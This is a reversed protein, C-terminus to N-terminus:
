GEAAHPGPCGTVGHWPVKSRPVHGAGDGECGPPVPSGRAGAVAVELCGGQCAPPQLPLVADGGGDGAGRAAVVALFLGWMQPHKKSNPPQPHPPLQHPSSVGQDQGDHEATASPALPSYRRSGRTAPRAPVCGKRRCKTRQGHSGSHTYVMNKKPLSDISILATLSEPGVQPGQAHQEAPFGGARSPGAAGPCRRRVPRACGESEM